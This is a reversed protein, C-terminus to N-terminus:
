SGAGAAVQNDGGPAHTLSHVRDVMRQVLREHHRRIRVLREKKKAGTAQTKLVDTLTRLWNDFDLNEHRFIEAATMRRNCNHCKLHAFAFLVKFNKPFKKFTIRPAEQEDHSGEGSASEHDEDMQDDLHDVHDVHDVHDDANGFRRNVRARTRRNARDCVLDTPTLIQDLVRSPLSKPLGLFQKLSNRWM